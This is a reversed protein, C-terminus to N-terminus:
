HSGLRGGMSTVSGGSGMRAPYLYPSALSVSQRVASAPNQFNALNKLLHLFPSSLRALRLSHERSDECSIYFNIPPKIGSYPTRFLINHDLCACFDLTEPLPIASSTWSQSGVLYSM